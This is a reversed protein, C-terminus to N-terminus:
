AAASTTGGRTLRRLPWLLMGAASLAAGSLGSLLGALLPGGHYGGAGAIPGPEVGPLLLLRLSYLL